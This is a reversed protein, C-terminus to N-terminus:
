SLIEKHILENLGINKAFWNQKLTNTQLTSNLLIFRVFRMISFTRTRSKLCLLM